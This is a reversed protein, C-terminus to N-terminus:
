PGFPAEVRTVMAITLWLPVVENIHGVNRKVIGSAPVAEIVVVMGLSIDYKLFSM